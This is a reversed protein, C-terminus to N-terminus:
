TAGLGVLEWLRMEWAAWLATAAALLGIALKVRFVSQEFRRCAAPDQALEQVFRSRRSISGHRWSRAEPPIGNLLAVENLTTGFIHAATTCLRDDDAPAHPGDAVTGAGGRTSNARARLMTRERVSPDGVLTAATLPSACSALVDRGGAPAPSSGPARTEALAGPSHVWCPQACPLGALALSRVGFADAQWEFRRSVWGFLFFWKFAMLAAFLTAAIQYQLPPLHQTRTSFITVLCGSILAFLLFFLIHHRKAHGAEHGFVAEIKTDEMQELMGDTILVYRLPGAVGMVAANVIVGGSRWVLIERCRLRLKECLRSLKDRLPGEPLRQTTWLYRLIVPALIAVLMSAAGIMLDPLYDHGGASRFWRRRSPEVLDDVVDRVLVILMLPVLVFLFQHRLNYIVYEPLRWVPRTPKGRFLYVELAIQRIAREAPYAAIWLLVLAIAFPTIALLTPVVPWGGIGPAARCLKMWDTCTLVGVQGGLLLAQVAAMCRGFYAQGIVPDDPRRDLRRVAGRAGLGAILAPLVTAAAVATIVWGPDRVWHYIPLPFLVISLVAIVVLFM